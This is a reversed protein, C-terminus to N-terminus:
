FPLVKVKLMEFVQLASYGDVSFNLAEVKAGPNVEGARREFIRVFTDERGVSLGLTVSDGIFAIRPVGEKKAIKRDDDRFGYGNTRIETGWKSGVGNPRYEWVMVSNDSPVTLMGYWDGNERFETKWSDYASSFYTENSGVFVMLTMTMTVTVLLINKILNSQLIWKMGKFIMSM